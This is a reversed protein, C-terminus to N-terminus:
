ARSLFAVVGGIGDQLGHTLMGPLLSKRWHALLGLCLGELMVIGMMGFGYYGHGLGFVVGQLVIAFARSGSWASFQATLYGRFIFEECFGATTSLVLWGFLEIVTKPTIGALTSEASKAVHDSLLGIPLAVVVFFGIAFGLDKFFAGVSKWRGAVLARMPIGRRRLEVWIALIVLWEAAIVTFYSSLRSGLFPLHANALGKQYGSAISLGSVVGVVLVTHWWPAVPVTMNEVPMIATSSSM